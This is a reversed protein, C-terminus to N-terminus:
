IVEQNDADEYVQIARDALVAVKPSKRPPLIFGTGLTNQGSFATVVTKLYTEALHPDTVPFSESQLWNVAKMASDAIFVRLKNTDQLFGIKYDIDVKFAAHVCM